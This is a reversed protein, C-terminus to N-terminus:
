WFFTVDTVAGGGCVLKITLQLSKQRSDQSDTDGEFLFVNAHAHSKEYHVTQTFRVVTVAM